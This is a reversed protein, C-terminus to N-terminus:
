CSEVGQHRPRYALESGKGALRSRLQRNEEALRRIEASLFECRKVLERDPESQVVPPSSRLRALEDRDAKIRAVREKALKRMHERKIHGCSKTAGRTLNAGLVEVWSRFLM